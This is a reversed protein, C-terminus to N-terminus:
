LNTNQVSLKFPIDCSARRWVPEFYPRSLLLRLFKSSNRLSCLDSIQLQQLILTWVDYILEEMKRFACIPIIYGCVGFEGRQM